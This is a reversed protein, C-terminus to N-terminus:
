FILLIRHLFQRIDEIEEPLVAHAMPYAHWSVPYGLGELQEKSMQGLMISVMPDFLGHAMFIPTSHNAPHREAILTSPTPLYSSLVIIGALSLSFRLGTHLAIAGGQSFGALVIRNTPIGLEQEREILLQVLRASNGIGELDENQSLDLQAIDYWARMQMGNNVTIARMPAYPFVFRVYDALMSFQEVIPVFDNGDAGLGHLWIVSAKPEGGVPNIDITAPIDNVYPSENLKGRTM